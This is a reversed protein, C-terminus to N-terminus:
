LFRQYNVVSGLLVRLAKVNLRCSTFTILREWLISGPWDACGHLRVLSQVTPQGVELERRSIRLFSMSLELFLLHIIKNFFNLM